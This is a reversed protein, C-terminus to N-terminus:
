KCGADDFTITMMSQSTENVERIIQKSNEQNQTWLDVVRKKKDALSTKKNNIMSLFNASSRSGQNTGTATSYGSQDGDTYVGSARRSGFPTGCRSNVPGISQRLSRADRNAAM